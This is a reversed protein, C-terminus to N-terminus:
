KFLKNWRATFPKVVDPTFKKLDPLNLTSADLSGPINPLPSASDGNGNWTTQGRVSMAYNMFVQAANPHTGWNIIAGAWAFGFGPNPYVIKVPAGTKVLPIAAGSGIFTAVAIEGSSLSQGGGVTSTYLTPKQEALRDLYGAGNTQELWTNFAVVTTSLLDVMGVKGKLEPRLVDKHGTIPTKVLNTNYMMVVADMSLIPTVGSVLYKEPFKAADPGIARVLVGEKARDEFWGTETSSVVDAGAVGAQREQEVKAILPGSAYRLWELTIGPYANEFDAKIRQMVPVVTATYLVVKGEKRAAAVVKDWEAASRAGAQALALSPAMLGVMALLSLRAVRRGGATVACQERM